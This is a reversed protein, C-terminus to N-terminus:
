QTRAGARAPVYSKVDNSKITSDGLYDLVAAFVKEQHLFADSNLTKQLHSLFRPDSNCDPVKDYNSNYVNKTLLYKRAYNDKAYVQKLYQSIKEKPIEFECKEKHYDLQEGPKKKCHSYYQPALLDGIHIAGHELFVKCFSLSKTKLGGKAYLEKAQKYSDSVPIYDYRPVVMKFNKQDCSINGQVQLVQSEFLLAKLASAIMGGAYMGASIGCGGATAITKDLFSGLSFGAAAVAAEQQPLMTVPADAYASNIFLSIVGYYNKNNKNKQGNYIKQYNKIFNTLFSIEPNYKLNEGKQTLYSDKNFNLNLKSKGFLISSNAFRAIPLEAKLSIKNEQLFRNFEVLESSSLIGMKKFGNGMESFNKFYNLFQSTSEITSQFPSQQNQKKQAFNNSALCINLNLATVITIICFNRISLLKKTM